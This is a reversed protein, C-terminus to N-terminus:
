CPCFETQLLSRSTGIVGAASAHSVLLLGIGLIITKEHRM